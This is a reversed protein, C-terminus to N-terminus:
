LMEGTFDARARRRLLDIARLSDVLMDRERRSLSEPDVHNGVRRGAQFDALQQRLLLFTVHTFAARLADAENVDLVGSGALADIRALTGTDMVGDRLAYLRTSAVLSMTGRLKLNVRGPSEGSDDTLIRGFWGLAVSRSTEDAGMAHLLEPHEKLVKTVHARLVSGADLPGAVAKFDFFIDAFLVAVPSRQRAWLEVQDLWQSATKRWVPNRAMVNGKCLPFGVKDLDVNFREALAIFYADIPAHQEDPYDALVFGNDQDPFLYNEGRGGSGMVLLTCAVPPAGWGTERLAAEAGALVRRHIDLNIETVFAQIDPAAVGDRLLENAIEVQARKVEAFGEISSDRTLREIRRITREGALAVGDLLDIMGVLRGAGDVVPMHRLSLRRMQAIARYVLEDVAIVAVPSSAFADITAEAGARFAIRRTVDQETVIGTIRRRDDVIVASSARSEEMARVVEAARTGPAVVVPAPRMVDRVLRAFIATLVNM